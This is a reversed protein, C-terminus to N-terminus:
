IGVGVEIEILDSGQWIQDLPTYHHQRDLCHPFLLFRSDAQMWGIMRNAFFWTKPCFVVPMRKIRTGPRRKYQLLVM